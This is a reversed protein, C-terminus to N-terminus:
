YVEKERYDPRAVMSILATGIAGSLAAASGGGPAPEKSALLEIFENIKMESLM